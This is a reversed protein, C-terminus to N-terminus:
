CARRRRNQRGALKGDEPHMWIPNKIASRQQIPRRQAARILTPLRFTPLLANAKDRNINDPHVHSKLTWPLAYQSGAVGLQGPHPQLIGLKKGPTGFGAKRM